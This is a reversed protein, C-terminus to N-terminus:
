ASAYTRMIQKERRDCVLRAAIEHERGAGVLLRQHEELQARTERRHVERIDAPEAALARFGGWVGGGCTWDPAEDHGPIAEERGVGVSMQVRRARRELVHNWENERM